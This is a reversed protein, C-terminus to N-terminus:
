KNDNEEDDIKIDKEVINRESVVFEVVKLVDYKTICKSEYVLNMLKTQIQDLSEVFSKQMEVQYDM